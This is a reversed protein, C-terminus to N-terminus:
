SRHAIALGALVWGVILGLGGFPTVAGLWNQGTLVLTYLSGSFVVVGGLLVAFAPTVRRNTAGAFAALVLLVVAHILHYKAATNWIELSRADVMQRLGHSGFAGAAVALAGVVGALTALTRPANASAQGM